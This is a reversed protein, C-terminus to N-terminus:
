KDNLVTNLKKERLIPILDEKSLNLSGSKILKTYLISLEKYNLKNINVHKNLYVGGNNNFIVGTPIESLNYLEIFGNNNFITNAPLISLNDLDIFGNNNFTIGDPITSYQLLNLSYEESKVTQNNYLEM